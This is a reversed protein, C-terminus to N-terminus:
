NTYHYYIPTVNIERPLKEVVRVTIVHRKRSSQIVAGCYTRLSFYYGLEISVLLSYGLFLSAIGGFSVLLDVYGFRMERKYLATPWNRLILRTMTPNSSKTGRVSYSIHDCSIWCNCQDTDMSVNNLCAYKSILCEKNDTFSLFWPLCNCRALLKDILCKVECDHLSVGEQKFHCGRQRLTLYRIDPTTYTMDVVFEIDMPSYLTTIPREGPKPSSDINETLYLRFNVLYDIESQVHTYLITEIYPRPQKFYPSSYNIRCLTVNNFLIVEM